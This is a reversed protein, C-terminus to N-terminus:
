LNSLMLHSFGEKKGMLKYVEEKPIKLDTLTGTVVIKYQEKVFDTINEISIIEEKAYRLLFKERLGLQVAKREMKNGYPDHDPDWQLRVDSNKVQNKWQEENEYIETVFASHVANRLIEEFFERSITVALIQKQGAKTAWGARYMMWLFNPKIWSMRMLSFNGGFCQHKVAYDSISK